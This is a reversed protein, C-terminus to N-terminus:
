KAQGYVASAFLLLGFLTVALNSRALLIPVPM